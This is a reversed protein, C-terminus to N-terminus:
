KPFCSHLIKDFIKPSHNDDLNAAFNSTHINANTDHCAVTVSCIEEIAKPFGKTPMEDFMHKVESNGDEFISEFECFNSVNSKATLPSVYTEPLALTESCNSYFQFDTSCGISAPPIWKRYHLKLKEM